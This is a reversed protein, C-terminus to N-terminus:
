NEEEEITYSQIVCGSCSATNILYQNCLITMPLVCDANCSVPNTVITIFPEGPAMQCGIVSVVAGGATVFDFGINPLHGKSSVTTTGTATIRHTKYGQTQQAQGFALVPILVVLFALIRKM